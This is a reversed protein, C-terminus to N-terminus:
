IYCAMKLLLTWDLHKLQVTSKKFDLNAPPTERQFQFTLIRICIKLYKLLHFNLCQQLSWLVTSFIQGEILIWSARPHHQPFPTASPILMESFDKQMQKSWCLQTSSLYQLHFWSLHMNPIGSHIINRLDCFVFIFLM